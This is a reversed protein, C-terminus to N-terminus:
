CGQATHRSSCPPRSGGGRFWQDVKSLAKHLEREAQDRGPKGTPWTVFEVAAAQARKRWETRKRMVNRCKIPIRKTM